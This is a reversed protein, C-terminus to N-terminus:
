PCGWEAIETRTRTEGGGASVQRCAGRRDGDRLTKSQPAGAGSEGGEEKRGEERKRRGKGVDDALEMVYYFYGEAENRGVQLVDVLGPHSRSVPEYKPIGSYEREYPRAEEFDDRYVVKVARFTGLATRALWVEGYSGRGICRLLAHDPVQPVPREASLERLPPLPKMGCVIRTAWMSIFQNADMGTAYRPLFGPATRHRSLIM